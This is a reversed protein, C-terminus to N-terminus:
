AALVENIVDVAHKTDAETGCTVRICGPLGFSTCDRVIVGADELDASVAEADGV